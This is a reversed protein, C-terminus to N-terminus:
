DRFLASAPSLDVQIALEDDTETGVSRMVEHSKEATQVESNRMTRENTQSSSDQVQDYCKLADSTQTSTDSSTQFCETQTQANEHIDPGEEITSFTQFCETQTQVNEHIDPGEKITQVEGNCM